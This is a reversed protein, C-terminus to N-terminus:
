SILTKIKHPILKNAIVNLENKHVSSLSHAPTPRDISYLMVLKPKLEVLHKIWKEVEENGTNDIKEGNFDGRFFLTQIILQGKTKLLNTKIKKITLGGLPQNIKKFLEESGADLKLICNDIKKIANLVRNNHLMTGNSLLSTKTCPSYEEKIKITDRVIEDFKPHLTPEGNGAFTISDITIDDKILSQIKVILNEKIKKPNALILKEKITNRTWGCECYICNFNCFKNEIPLLNIGLSNGLRRSNIPGFIIKNFLSTDL